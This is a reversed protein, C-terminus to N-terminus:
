GTGRLPGRRGAWRIPAAPEARDEDDRQDDGDGEEEPERRQHGVIRQDDAAEGEAGDKGDDDEAERDGARHGEDLAQGVLLVAGEAVGEAADGAGAGVGWGDDDRDAERECREHDHEDELEVEAVLIEAGRDEVGRGEDGRVEEVVFGVGELRELGLAGVDRERGRGRHETAEDGGDVAMRGCAHLRAAGLRREEERAFHRHGEAGRKGGVGLDDGALPPRLVVRARREDREVLAEAVAEADVEAVVHGERDEAVLDFGLDCAEAAVGPLAADIEEGGERGAHDLGVGRREEGGDGGRRAALLVDLADEGVGDGVDVEDGDALGEFCIAMARLWSESAAESTPPMATPLPRRTRM